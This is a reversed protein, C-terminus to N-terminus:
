FQVEDATILQKSEMLSAFVEFVLSHPRPPRTSTHSYMKTIVTNLCSLLFFPSQFYSPKPFSTFSLKVIEM